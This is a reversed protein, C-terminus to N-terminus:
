RPFKKLRLRHHRMSIRSLLKEIEVLNYQRKPRTQDPRLVLYRFHLGPKFEDNRVLKNVSWRSIELAECVQKLSIWPSASSAAGARPPKWGGAPAPLDSADLCHSLSASCAPPAPRRAPRTSPPRFATFRQSSLPKPRHNPRNVNTFASFKFVMGCERGTPAAGVYVPGVLWCPPGM